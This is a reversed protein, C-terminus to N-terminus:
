AFPWMQPRPWPRAWIAYESSRTVCGRRRLSSPVNSGMSQSVAKASIPSRTFSMMAFFPGSASPMMWSGRGDPLCYELRKM